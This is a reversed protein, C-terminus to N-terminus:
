PKRILSIQCCMQQCGKIFPGNRYRRHGVPIIVLHSEYSLFVLLLHGLITYYHVLPMRLYDLFEEPIFYQVLFRFFARAVPSCVPLSYHRNPRDIRTFSVTQTLRTVGPSQMKQAIRISLYNGACVPPAQIYILKCIVVVGGRLRSTIVFVGCSQELLVDVRIEFFKISYDTVLHLSLKCCSILCIILM